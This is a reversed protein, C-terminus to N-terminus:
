AIGVVIGDKVNLIATFFPYVLKLDHDYYRRMFSLREQLLSPVCHFQSTHILKRRNQYTSLAHPSLFLSYFAAVHISM